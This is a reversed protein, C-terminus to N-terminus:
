NRKTTVANRRYTQWVSNTRERLRQITVTWLLALLAGLL